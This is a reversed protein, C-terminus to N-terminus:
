TGTAAEVARKAASRRSQLRNGVQDPYTGRTHVRTHTCTYSCAYHTHARTHKDQRLSVISLVSVPMNLSGTLVMECLANPYALMQKRSPCMRLAL